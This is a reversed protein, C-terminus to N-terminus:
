LYKLNLFNTKDSGLSLSKQLGSLQLIKVFILHVIQAETEANSEESTKGNGEDDKPSFDKMSKKGREVCGKVMQNWQSLSHLGSSNVFSKWIVNAIEDVSDKLSLLLSM